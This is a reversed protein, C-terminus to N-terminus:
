MAMPSNSKYSVRDAIKLFIVLTSIVSTNVINLVLDFSFDVYLKHINVTGGCRQMLLVLGNLYM